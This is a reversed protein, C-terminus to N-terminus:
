STSFIWSNTRQRPPSVNSLSKRVPSMLWVPGSLASVDVQTRRPNWSKSMAATSSEELVPGPPSAAAMIPLM